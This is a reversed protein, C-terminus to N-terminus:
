KKSLDDILRHIIDNIPFLVRVEGDNIGHARHGQKEAYAATKHEIYPVTMIVMSIVSLPLMAMIAVLVCQNKTRTELHKFIIM